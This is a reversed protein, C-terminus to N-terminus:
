EPLLTEGRAVAAAEMTAKLVLAEARDAVVQTPGNAPSYPVRTAVLGDPAAITECDIIVEACKEPTYIAAFQVCAKYEELDNILFGSMRCEVTDLLLQRAACGKNSPFFHRKVEAMFALDAARSLNRSSTTHELAAIAASALEQQALTPPTIDSM